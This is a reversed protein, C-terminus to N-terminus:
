VSIHDLIKIKFKLRFHKYSQSHGLGKRDKTTLKLLEHLPSNSWHAESRVQTRYNPTEVVDQLQEYSWYGIGLVMQESDKDYFDGLRFPRGAAAISVPDSGVESSPPYAFWLSFKIIYQNENILRLSRRRERQYWYHCSDGHPFFDYANTM